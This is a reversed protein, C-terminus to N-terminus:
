QRELLAIYRTFDGEERIIERMLEALSMHGWSVARRLLYPTPSHPEHQALYDAVAQLQQYAQERNAIEGAASTASTACTAHVSQAQARIHVPSPEAAEPLSLVGGSAEERAVVREGLLGPAVRELQLLAHAVRALSPADYGLREDLACTFDRWADIAQQAQRHLATLTAANGGRSAHRALVARTLPGGMAGAMAGDMEDDAYVTTTARQWEDLSVAPPDREEIHLLPVHLTLLLAFADNMWAFPAIRADIDGAEIQPWATDWYREVLAILLRTGAVFGALGHLRTWAECLWAALQFDKSRAALAEGCLAAVTQWDAKALPREWEGMPLTTDDEHRAERIRQYVPTYRLAVGAGGGSEQPLPALLAEFQAAFDPATEIPYPQNM